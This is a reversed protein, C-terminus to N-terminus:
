KNAKERSILNEFLKTTTEVEDDEFEREKAETLLSDEANNAENEGASTSIVENDRDADNEEGGENHNNGDEPLIDDFNENGEIDNNESNKAENSFENNSFDEVAEVEEDVDTNKDGIIEQEIESQDIIDGEGEKSKATEPEMIEVDSKPNNFASKFQEQDNNYKNSEFIFNILQIYILLAGQNFCMIVFECLTLKLVNGTIEAPINFTTITIISAYLHSLGFVLYWIEPKIRILSHMLLLFPVSINKSFMSLGIIHSPIKFLFFMWAVIFFDKLLNCILMVIPLLYMRALIQKRNVIFKSRIMLFIVTFIINVFLPGAYIVPHKFMGILVETFLLDASTENTM